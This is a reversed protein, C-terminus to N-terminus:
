ELRQTILGTPSLPLRVWSGCILHLVCGITDVAYLDNSSSCQQTKFCLGPKFVVPM